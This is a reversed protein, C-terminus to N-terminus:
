EKLSSNTVDSIIIAAQLGFCKPSDVFYDWNNINEGTVPVVEITKGAKSAGASNTVRILLGDTAFENCRACKYSNKSEIAM